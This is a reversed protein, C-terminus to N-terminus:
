TEITVVDGDDSADPADGGRAKSLVVRVVIAVVVAVVLLKVIRKTGDEM